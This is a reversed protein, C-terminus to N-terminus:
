DWLEGSNILTRAEAIWEHDASAHGFRIGHRQASRTTSPRHPPRPCNHWAPPATRPPCPSPSATPRRLPRRSPWTSGFGFAPPVGEGTRPAVTSANIAASPSGVAPSNVAAYLRAAARDRVAHMDRAHLARQMAMVVHDFFVSGAAPLPDARRGPAAVLTGSRRDAPDRDIAEHKEVFRAHVDGHVARVRPHLAAGFVDFPHRHVPPPGQRQQAGHTVGAPHDQLRMNAVALASRKTAQSM